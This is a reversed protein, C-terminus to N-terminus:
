KVIKLFRRKGIKILAPNELLFNCDNIRKGDIDIAGQTILRRAESKSKTMGSQYIIEILPSKESIRYELVDYPFLGEQFVRKFALLAEEAENKSHYDSVILFALDEKAKMPHLIGNEIEKKIKEHDKDTLLEYYKIMLSDPISMIKGFMEKPNEKIGIHNNYTKSMKLTGDLGELIPTTIVVQPTQGYFRQVERGVLMNFKQDSGGIEIDAGVIYSDYGQLLPYLFEAMAIPKGGKYRMLFDDRELMRAITYSFSLKIFEELQMKSFWSSNYLIKTKSSSLIKFVQDLYTLSNEKIQEKSLRPRTKNRFSPDGIAATFDGIIFIINHGQEQFEKLKRLLVTHGLHIDPSTPDIGFKINLPINKSILCEFKEEEIIELLGKKLM